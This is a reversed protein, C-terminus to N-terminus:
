QVPPEPLRTTRRQRRLPNRHSPLGTRGALTVRDICFRHTEFAARTPKHSGSCCESVEPKLAPVLRDSGTSKMLPARANWPAFFYLVYVAHAFRVVYGARFTDTKFDSV